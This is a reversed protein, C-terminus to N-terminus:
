RCNIVEVTKVIVAFQQLSHDILKTYENNTFKCHESNTLAEKSRSIFIFATAAGVVLLVLIACTAPILIMPDEMFNESPMVGGIMSGLHRRDYGDFHLPEVTAGVTTLTAFHYKTETDGAESSATVSLEHWTGPRLERIIYMSGYEPKIHSSVTTWSHKSDDNQKSSQGLDKDRYRIAFHTIPCLGGNTTWRDLDLMVFTINSVIFANNNPAIPAIIPSKHPFFTVM